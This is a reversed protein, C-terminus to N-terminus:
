QRRARAPRCGACGAVAGIKSGECSADAGHECVLGGSVVSSDLLVTSFGDSRLDGAVRSSAIRAHTARDLKVPGVEADVVTLLGGEAVQLAGDVPLRFVLVESNSASISGRLTAPGSGAGGLSVRSFARALIPGEIECLTAVLTSNMLSLGDSAVATRFLQVQSFETAALGEDSIGRITCFGLDVCSRRADLALRGDRLTTRGLSVRSDRSVLITDAHALDCGDVVLEAGAVAIAQPGDSIRLNELRLTRVHHATVVARSGATPGAGEIAAGGGPAGRLTLEAVPVDIPGACTGALDVVVPGETRAALAQLVAALDDGADCDVRVETASRASASSTVLLLGCAAALRAQLM